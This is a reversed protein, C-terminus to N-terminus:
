KLQKIIKSKYSSANKKIESAYVVNALYFWVASRQWCITNMSHYGHVVIFFSSFFMREFLPTWYLYIITVYM